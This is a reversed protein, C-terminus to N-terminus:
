EIEQIKNIKEKLQGYIEVTKLNKMAKIDTGLEEVLQNMEKLLALRKKHNAVLQMEEELAYLQMQGKKLRDYVAQRSIKLEEAIESISLDEDVYLHLVNGTHPTLLVHYFDLYITYEQKQMRDGKM